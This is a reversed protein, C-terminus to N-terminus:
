DKKLIIYLISILIGLLSIIQAVKLPGFMLSDTRLEEIFLRGLSYLGIYLFFVSGKKTSLTKLIYILILFLFNWISEYLFTPHYYKGNIYM